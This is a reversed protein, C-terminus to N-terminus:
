QHAHAVSVIHARRNRQWCAEDHDEYFPKQKGNSKENLQASPTGVHVLYDKTAAARRDGPGLNYEASGREDCHGEIALKYGSYDRLIDRLEASDTQLAKLADSRISAKNYDFYADEIQALLEDTRARTAANPTHSPTVAHPHVSATHVPSPARKTAPESLVAPAPTPPPAAAVQKKACGATISALAALVILARRHAHSM